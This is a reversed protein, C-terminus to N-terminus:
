DEDPTCSPAWAGDAQALDHCGLSDDLHGCEGDPKCCGAVDAGRWTTGPCEEDVSGPAHMPVCTAHDSFADLTYRMGCEPEADDDERVCHADDTRECGLTVSLQVTVVDPDGEIVFTYNRDPLAVFSFGSWAGFLGQISGIRRGECSGDLVEFTAESPGTSSLSAVYTGGVEPRWTM